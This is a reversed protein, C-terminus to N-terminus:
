MNPNQLHTQIAFNHFATQMALKPCNTQMALLLFAAWMCNQVSCPMNLGPLIGSYWVNLNLQAHWASIAEAIYVGEDVVAQVAANDQQDDPLPEAGTAAQMPDMVMEEPTPLREEEPVHDTMGPVAGMDADFMDMGLEPMM